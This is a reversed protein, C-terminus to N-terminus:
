RSYALLQLREVEALLNKCHERYVYGDESMQCVKHEDRRVDEKIEEIDFKNM